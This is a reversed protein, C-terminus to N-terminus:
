TYKKLKGKMRDRLAYVHEINSVISTKALFLLLVSIHSAALLHGLNQNMVFEAFAM